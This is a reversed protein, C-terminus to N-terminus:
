TSSPASKRSPTPRTVGIGFYLKIVDKERRTLTSLTREVEGSLSYGSLGDDPMETSEDRLLDILRGDEGEQFTADLSAHTNGIRLTEGVETEDLKLARAIEEASPMRKLKQELVSATRGIRHITGVRNLPLKVIRSQEALSQLIGQRVWWVAYSIFKFKKTEDFRRAARILGLNGENILDTLPLGQNQYNRAVSVVFRLNAKVLAELALADNKRIRVALAAEEKMPLTRNKSIDRLYKSLSDEEIYFRGRGSDQDAM